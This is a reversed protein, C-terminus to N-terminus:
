SILLEQLSRMLRVRGVPMSTRASNEPESLLRGWRGWRGRRRQRSVPHSAPMRGERRLGRVGDRLWMRPSRPRGRRGLRCERVCSALVVRWACTAARAADQERLLLLPAGEGGM